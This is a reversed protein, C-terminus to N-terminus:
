HWIAIAVVGNTISIVCKNPLVVNMQERLITHEFNFGSHM